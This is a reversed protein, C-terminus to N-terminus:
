QDGLESVELNIKDLLSSITHSTKEEGQRNTVIILSVFHNGQEVLHVYMTLVDLQITSTMESGAYVPNASKVYDRSEAQITELIENYEDELTWGMANYYGTVRMEIDREASTLIIGDNNPSVEKNVFIETPFTVCFNYRSNCYRQPAEAASFGSGIFFAFVLLALLQTRKRM